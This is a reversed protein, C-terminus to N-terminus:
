RRKKLRKLEARLQDNEAVVDDFTKAAPASKANKPKTLKNEEAGIGLPQILDLLAEWAENLEKEAKHRYWDAAKELKARAKKYRVAADAIANLDPIM